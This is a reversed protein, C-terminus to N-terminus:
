IVNCKCDNGPFESERFPGKGTLRKGCLWRRVPFTVKRSFVAHRVEFNYKNEFEVVGPPAVYRRLCLTSHMQVVVFRGMNLLILVTESNLRSLPLMANVFKVTWFLSPCFCVFFMSSKRWAAARSIRKAGGGELHEAHYYNYSIRVMKAGNFCKQIRRVTEGSLLRQFNPTFRVRPWFGM